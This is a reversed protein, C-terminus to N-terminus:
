EQLARSSVGQQKQYITTFMDGSGMARLAWYLLFSFPLLLPTLLLSASVGLIEDRKINRIGKCKLLRFLYNRNGLLRNLISQLLTFPGLELSASSSALPTYGLHKLLLDMSYHSFQWLHRPPDLILWAPGFVKAQISCFNPQSLLLVGGPKLLGGLEELVTKPSELHEVVGWLTIADFFDPPYAPIEETDNKTKESANESGLIDNFPDWGHAEWGLKAQARVFHGAGSGFDLLRRGPHTVIRNLQTGRLHALIGRIRELFPHFRQGADNYFVHDYFSAIAAKDPFPYLQGLGCGDCRIIQWSGPVGDNQDKVM